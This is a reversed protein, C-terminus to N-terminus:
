VHISQILTKNAQNRIAIFRVFAFSLTPHLARYSHDSTDCEEAIDIVVITYKRALTMPFPLLSLTFNESVNPEDMKNVKAFM